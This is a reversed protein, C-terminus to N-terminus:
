AQTIPYEDPEEVVESTEIPEAIQTRIVKLAVPGKKSVGIEFEVHDGLNLYRFGSQRIETQHVFLDEGQEQEIFGFGKANNFWKVTGQKVESMM